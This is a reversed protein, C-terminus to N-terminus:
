RPAAHRPSRSDKPMRPLTSPREVAFFDASLEGGLGRGTGASYGHPPLKRLDAELFGPADSFRRLPPQKPSASAGKHDPVAQVRAVLDAVGPLALLLALLAATRSRSWVAM